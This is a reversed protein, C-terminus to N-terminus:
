VKCGNMALWSKLESQVGLQSWADKRSVQSVGKFSIPSEPLGNFSTGSYFVVDGTKTLRWKLNPQLNAMKNFLSATNGGPFDFSLTDGPYNTGSFEFGIPINLTQGVIRLVESLTAREIKIPALRVTADAKVASEAVVQGNLLSLLLLVWKHASM